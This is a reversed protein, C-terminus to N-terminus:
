EKELIAVYLPEDPADVFRRIRWGTDRVLSRMEARSVLLFDAWPTAYTRYRIRGRIQGPMRGRSRNRQLYARHPSRGHRPDTSAALIRGRDSTIRHFRRLLRKASARSGVLGFNNCMMVITDFTGLSGDIESISGVQVRKLGRIRSVRVALPSNDIGLVDHGREQLHIAVRGAGCGVDLVRGIVSRMAKREAASWKPYEAFYFSPGGTAFVFGDDYEVIEQGGKGRLFDYMAHGYADQDSRM